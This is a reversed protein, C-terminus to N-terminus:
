MGVLQRCRQVTVFKFADVAEEADVRGLHPPLPRSHFLGGSSNNASAARATEPKQLAAIRPALAFCFCVDTIPDRSGTSISAEM